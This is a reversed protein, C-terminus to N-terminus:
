GLLRLQLPPGFAAKDARITASLFYLNRTLPFSRTKGGSRSLNGVTQERREDRLNGRIAVAALLVLSPVLLWALWAM